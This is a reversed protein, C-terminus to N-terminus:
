GGPGLRGFYGPPLPLRTLLHRGAQRADAAILKAEEVLQAEPPEQPLRLRSELAAELRATDISLLILPGSGGDAGTTPPAPPSGPPVVTNVVAAAALLVAAACAGVYAWPATSRAPRATADLSVDQLATLTRRRLVRSPEARAAEAEARLRRVVDRRALRTVDPERGYGIRRLWSLM